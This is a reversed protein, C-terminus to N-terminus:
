PKLLKFIIFYPIASLVQYDRPSVEKMRDLPKPEFITKILFGEDSAESAIEGIPKHWTTVDLVKTHSLLAHRHMYDGTITTANNARDRVISMTSIKVTDNDELVEATSYIPHNCSFLFFSNPKLVRRVESLVKHWDEIYHIALSSYVFDFSSDPFDLKEMDMVRFECAPYSEKAVKILNTSLDIGIVKGAGLSLLHDCDEGSGCGLSLVTKGELDPLLSYMAPKEYLSHYPSDDKDRVHKTYSDANSEYWQKSRADTSM